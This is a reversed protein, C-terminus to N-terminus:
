GTFTPEVEVAPATEAETTTTPESTTTTEVTTTTTTTPSQTVEFSTDAETEGNECEAQVDYTGPEVDVPAGSGQDLVTPVTVQFENPMPPASSETYIVAYARADSDVFLVEYNPADYGCDLTLSVTSGVPGSTPDAELSTFGASAPTALVLLLATLACLGVPVLRKM